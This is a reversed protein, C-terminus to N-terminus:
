GAGQIVGGKCWVTGDHVVDGAVAHWLVADSDAAGHRSGEGFPLAWASPNSKSFSPVLVGLVWFYFHYGHLSCIIFTYSLYIHTYHILMHIYYSYLYALSDTGLQIVCFMMVVWKCSRSAVLLKEPCIAATARLCSSKPKAKPGKGRHCAPSFNMGLWYAAHLFM